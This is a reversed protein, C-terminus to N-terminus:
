YHPSYTFSSSARLEGCVTLTFSLHIKLSLVSHLAFKNGRTLAFVRTGLCRPTLASSSEAPPVNTLLSCCSGWWDGEVGEPFKGKVFLLSSFSTLISLSPVFSFSRLENTVHLLLYLYFRCHLLSMFTILPIVIHLFTLFPLSPFVFSIYVIYYYYCRLPM